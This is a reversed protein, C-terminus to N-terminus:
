VVVVGELHGSKRPFIMKYYNFEECAFKVLFYVLLITMIGGFRYRISYGILALGILFMYFVADFDYSRKEKTKQSKLKELEEKNIRQMDDFAEKSKEINFIREANIIKTQSQIYKDMTVPFKNLDEEM